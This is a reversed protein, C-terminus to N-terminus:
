SFYKTVTLRPLDRKITMLESLKAASTRFESGMAGHMTLTLLTFSAREVELIRRNYLRKRESM